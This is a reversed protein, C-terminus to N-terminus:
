ASEVNNKNELLGFQVMIGADVKSMIFDNCFGIKQSFQEIPLLMLQECLATSERQLGVSTPIEVHTPMWKKTKSTLPIAHIVPSFCNAKNNSVIIMPRHFGGQISGVGSGLNVLYIEGRNLQQM